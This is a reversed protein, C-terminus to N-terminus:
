INLLRTLSNTLNIVSRPQWAATKNIVDFRNNDEWIINWVLHKNDEEYPKFGDQDREDFLLYRGVEFEYYEFTNKDDM